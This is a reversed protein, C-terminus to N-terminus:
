FKGSFSPIYNKKTLEGTELSIVRIIQLEILM